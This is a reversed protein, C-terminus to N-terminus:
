LAGRLLEPAGQLFASNRFCCGFLLGTALDAAQLKGPLFCSGVELLWCCPLPWLSGKLIELQKLVTAFPDRADASSAKPPPVPPPPKSPPSQPPEPPPLPPLLKYSNAAASLSSSHAIGGGGTVSSSCTESPELYDVTGTSLFLLFVLLSFLICLCPIAILVIVRVVLVRIIVQFGVSTCIFIHQPLVLKPHIFDHGLAQRDALADRGLHQSTLM